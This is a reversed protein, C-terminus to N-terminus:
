DLLGKAADIDSLKVFLTGASAGETIFGYLYEINIDRTGLRKGLESLAGPRSELNVAVIETDLVLLGHEGFFHIAKQPKDVVMRVVAHDVADSVTLGLINIGAAELGESVAALTGPSNKLFISLQTVLKM